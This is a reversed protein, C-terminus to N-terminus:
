REHKCENVCPRTQMVWEVEREEGGHPLEESHRFVGAECLGERVFAGSTIDMGSKLCVAVPVGFAILPEELREPHHV